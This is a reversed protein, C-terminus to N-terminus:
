LKNFQLIPNGASDRIVLTDGEIQFSNATTLGSLYTAEQEMIGAPEACISQTWSPPTIALSQGSVIYQASGDFAINHYEPPLGMRRAIENMLAIDFGDLQSEAVYYEFPLYDASTGVVIKGAARVKEWSDDAPVVPAAPTPKPPAPQLFFVFGLFGCLALAVVALVGVIILLTRNNSM